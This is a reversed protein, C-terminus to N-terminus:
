PTNSECGDLYSGNKDYWGPQCPAISGGGSDPTGYSPATTPAQTATPGAPTSDSPTGYSSAEQSECGDAFSGNRDYWGSECTQVKCVGFGCSPIAVHPAVTNIYVNGSSDTVPVGPAGVPPDGLPITRYPVQTPSPGPFPDKAECGNQFLGDIDRWGWECQSVKCTGYSCEPVTVHPATKAVFSEEGTLPNTYSDDKSYPHWDPPLCTTPFTRLNHTTAHKARTPIAPCSPDSTQEAAKPMEKLEPFGASVKYQIPFATNVNKLSEPVTWSIPTGLNTAFSVIRAIEPPPTKNPNERAWTDVTVLQEVTPVFSQVISVINKYEASDKPIISNIVLDPRLTYQLEQLRQERLWWPKLDSPIPDGSKYGSGFEAIRKRMDEDPPNDLIDKLEYLKSIETMKYYDQPYYGNQAEDLRKLDSSPLVKQAVLSEIRFRVKSRSEISFLASAEADSLVGIVNLSELRDKLDAPIPDRNLIDASTDMIQRPEALAKDIAVRIEESVITRVKELFLSQKAMDSEVTKVFSEVFANQEELTTLRVSVDSITNEYAVLIKGVDDYYKQELLFNVEALREEAIWVQKEIKAVPQFSFFLQINETLPKIFYLPSNPLLGSPARVNAQQSTALNIEASNTAVALVHPKSTEYWPGWDYLNQFSNHYAFASRLPIFISLTIFLVIFCFKRM